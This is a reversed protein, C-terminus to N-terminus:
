LAERCIMGFKLTLNQPNDYYGSAFIATFNISKDTLIPFLHPSTESPSIYNNFNFSTLFPKHTELTILLQIHLLNFSKLFVSYIFPFETSIEKM